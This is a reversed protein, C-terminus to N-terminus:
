EEKAELEEKKKQLELYTRIFQLQQLKLSIWRQAQKPQTRFLFMTFLYAPSDPRDFFAASQEDTLINEKGDEILVLKNNKLTITKSM